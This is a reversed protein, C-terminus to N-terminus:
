EEEKISHAEMLRVRLSLSQLSVLDFAQRSSLKMEMEHKNLWRILSVFKSYLKLAFFRFMVSIVPVWFIILREINMPITLVTKELGAMLAKELGAM